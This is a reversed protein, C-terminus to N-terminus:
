NRASVLMKKGTLIWYQVEGGQQLKGKLEEPIPSEFTEYNELDMIQASDPTIAVVQGTKKEIIPVEVETDAPKVISRRRNDFIGIVELRVKAAGHKGSASITVDLVKCPEGDLVCYKGEKLTKIATRTEMRM